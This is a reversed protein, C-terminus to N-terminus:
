ALDGLVHSFLDDADDYANGDRGFGARYNNADVSFTSVLGFYISDRGSMFIAYTTNGMGSTLAHSTAGTGLDTISSINNSDQIAQTGTQSVHAWAKSSGNVVYGTEVTDVGDTINSVSLTSM